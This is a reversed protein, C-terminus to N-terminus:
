PAKIFADTNMLNTSILEGPLPAVQISSTIDKSKMTGNIIFIDDDKVLPKKEKLWNKFVEPEKKNKDKLEADGSAIFTYKVDFDRSSRPWMSLMQREYVIVPKNVNSALAKATLPVYGFLTTSYFPAWRKIGSETQIVVWRHKDSGYEITGVPHATASSQPAKRGRRNKKTKNSHM